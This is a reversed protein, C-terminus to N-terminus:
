TLATFLEPKDVIKRGIREKEQIDSLYDTRGYGALFSYWDLLNIETEPNKVTYALGYKSSDEVYSKAKENWFYDREEKETIIDEIIIADEILCYVLCYQEVFSIYCEKNIFYANQISTGREPHQALEFIKMSIKRKVENKMEKGYIKENWDYICELKLLFDSSVVIAREETNYEM